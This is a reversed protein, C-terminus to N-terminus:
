GYKVLMVITKPDKRDSKSPSNDDLEKSREVHFPNVQVVMKGEELIAQAFTFWYHGTPEFGVM